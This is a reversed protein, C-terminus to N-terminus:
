ELTLIQAYVDDKKRIVYVILAAVVYYYPLVSYLVLYM